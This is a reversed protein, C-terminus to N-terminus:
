VGVPPVEAAAVESGDGGERIVVAVVDERLVAANMRCDIEVTSGLFTGANYETGDRGVITVAYIAGPESGAIVLDAETGWTHAVLDGDVGIGAVEEDFDVPELAGLTGPPGAIPSETGWPLVGGVAVGAAICAAAGLALWWASRRPRRPVVATRVTKPVADEPAAETEVWDPLHSLGGVLEGLEALERDISSDALRLADLEQMEAPTLDHALAGAILEARRDENSRTM